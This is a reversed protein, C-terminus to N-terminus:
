APVQDKVTHQGKVKSLLDSRDQELRQERASLDMKQLELRQHDTLYVEEWRAKDCTAGDRERIDLYFQEEALDTSYMGRIFTVSRGPVVQTQGDRIITREPVLNAIITQAHKRNGGTAIPGHPSMIFPGPDSPADDKYYIKVPLKHPQGTPCNFQAQQPDFKNGCTLCLKFM